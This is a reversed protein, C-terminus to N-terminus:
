ATGAHRAGCGGRRHRADRQGCARPHTRRIGMLKAEVRDGIRIRAMKTEEFYGASTSPLVRHQDAWESVTLFPEPAMAQRWTQDLWQETTTSSM